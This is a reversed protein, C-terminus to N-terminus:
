KNEKYNKLFNNTIKVYYIGDNYSLNFRNLENHSVLYTKEPLLITYNNLSININLMSQSLYDPQKKDLLNSLTGFYVFRNNKSSSFVGDIWVGISSTPYVCVVIKNRYENELSNIFNYDDINIWPGNNIFNWNLGQLLTFMLFTILMINNLKKLINYKISLDKIYYYIHSIFLTGTLWFPTLIFFRWSESGLLMLFSSILPVIFLLIILSVQYSLYSSRNSIITLFGLIGITKIIDTELNNWFDFFKSMEPLGIFLSTYIQNIRSIFHNWTYPWILYWSYILLLICLFFISMNKFKLSNRCFIQRLNYLIILAIGWIGQWPHSFFSLFIFIILLFLHYKSNKKTYKLLFICTIYFLSLSLLNSLLPLMRLVTGSVLAFCIGLYPMINDSTLEKIFYYVSIGFLSIFIIQIGFLYQLNNLFSKTLIYFLYLIIISIPRDCYKFFDLGLENLSRVYYLYSPTDWGKPIETQFLSQLVFLLSLFLSLLIPSIKLLFRPKNLSFNFFM